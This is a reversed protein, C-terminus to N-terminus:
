RYNSLVETDRWEVIRGQPNPAHVVSVTNTQLIGGHGNTIVMGLEEAGPV